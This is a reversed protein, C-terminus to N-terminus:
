VVQRPVALGELDQAFTKSREVLPPIVENAAAQCTEQSSECVTGGAQVAKAVLAACTESALVCVTVTGGVIVTVTASKAFAQTLPPCITDNDCPSTTIADGAGNVLAGGTAQWAGGIWTCGLWAFGCDKPPLEPLRPNSKMHRTTKTTCVGHAPDSSLGCTTTTSVEVLAREDDLDGAYHGDPDVLTAPNANAYLFRNLTLPNQASGAVSDLSSFAGLSPDYSRAQFDYLDTSGTASELIRGQFRWPSKIANHRVLLHALLWIAVEDVQPRPPRRATRLPHL